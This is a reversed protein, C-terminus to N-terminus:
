GTSDRSNVPITPNSGAVRLILTAEHLKKESWERLVRRMVVTRKLGHAQCYGDLVAVEPVTLEFSIETTKDPQM